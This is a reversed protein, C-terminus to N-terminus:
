LIMTPNSRSRTEQIQTKVVEWFMVFEKMKLSMSEALSNLCLVTYLPACYAKFMTLNVSDSCSNCKWLLFTQKCMCHQRYTDEEDASRYNM